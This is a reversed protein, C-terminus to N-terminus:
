CGSILRVARARLVCVEERKGAAQMGACRQEFGEELEGKVVCYAAEGWGRARPQKIGTGDAPGASCVKPKLAQLLCASQRPVDVMWLVKFFCSRSLGPDRHCM